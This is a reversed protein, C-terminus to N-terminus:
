DENEISKFLMFRWVNQKDYNKFTKGSGFM